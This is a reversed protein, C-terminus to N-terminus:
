NLIVTLPAVSQSHPESSRRWSEPSNRPWPGPSWSALRTSSTTWPSTATTSSTRWKRAIAHPSRWPRSSSLPRLPFLTSPPKVIRSPWGSRLRWAKGTRLPRPSTTVSRRPPSVSPVSRPLSPPLPPLKVESPGWASSRLSPILHMNLVFLIVNISSYNEASDLLKPKETYLPCTKLFIILIKWIFIQKSPFLLKM